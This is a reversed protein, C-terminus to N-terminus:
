SGPLDLAEESARILSPCVSGVETDKGLSLSPLTWDLSLPEQCVPKEGPTVLTVLKLAVTLNIQSASSRLYMKQEKQAISM